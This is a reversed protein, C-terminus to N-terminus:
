EEAAERAEIVPQYKETDYAVLDDWGLGKVTEVLTDWMQDFEEDSSAFIMQWSSDCIQTGCESRILAIDTDDSALTKNISPVPSLQGSNEFYEVENAAGFKDTWEQNEQTNNLELYSSWYDSSYTEGTNPNIEIGAVIWQNVQNNGDNWDGGGYEEPVEFSSSFRTLGQETLTYKGDEGVTYVVGEQGVHQLMLGEPSALWDLFELIRDRTAEDVQSGVAWCRGDGYYTDSVQFVNMDAIPIGIYNQDEEGKAPSNWFGYQWSYWFLYVRGEQMKECATTWDQTASDPDVLGRENADRFFNLMKYYAGDKDLLDTISNDNGILVSGNVEQGYWKTLQNVTEISTGDWDSWLSLAYANDGADNTPHATQIAELVDLLDDLDELDPSGQETYLDWRLRPMTYVTTEMYATPGNSNMECPIAWTGETGLAANIDDNFLNIQESYKQLNEYNGIQDSIDLILGADICDQMHSNDLIIIDGLDGSATRTSYLSAADGSVQPAIINLKINFRDKIEKAYWGIQEGQYNAAVDYVELTLEEEEAEETESALAPVATGLMASACMAAAAASAMWKNRKM